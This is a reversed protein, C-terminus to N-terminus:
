ASLESELFARVRDGPVGKAVYADGLARPLVLTLAGGEVKKDQYMAALLADATLGPEPPLHAFKSPLGASVVPDTFLSTEAFPSQVLRGNFGEQWGAGLQSYDAFRAALCLGLAVAEGHLVRGDYGYVAEIAHGFTHGLNLLARVGGEREDEVVIRAKLRVSCEILGELRVPEHTPPPETRRAKSGWESVAGWFDSDDILAAKIMEAYGAWFERTPMTALFATDAVVLSPQHFAGVLNKGAATNIATKGGVSSDVMALLTTPVQVFRCGRRLTAACFGALDGTVGGGFAVVAGDRGVGASLLAESVREFEAWCKSGEGAPVLVVPADPLVARMADEHLGWVTEDAVIAATGAGIMARLRDASAPLAGEGIVVDYARAGLEVRVERM